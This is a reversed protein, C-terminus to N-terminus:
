LLRKELLLADQLPIGHMGTRGIQPKVKRIEDLADVRVAVIRMGRKQYFGIARLNDTTTTLTLKRCQESRAITEVYSFLATGIGLGERLSSLTVIECDTKEISYTVEGVIEKGAPGELIAVFGPLRTPYYSRKNSLVPEGGWENILHQRLWATDAETIPHISIKYLLDSNTM